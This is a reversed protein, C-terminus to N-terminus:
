FVLYTSRFSHGRKKGLTLNEALDIKVNVRDAYCSAFEALKKVASPKSVVFLVNKRDSAGQAVTLHNDDLLKLLDVKIPHDDM